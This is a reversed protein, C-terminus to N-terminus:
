GSGLVQPVRQTCRLQTRGKGIISKTAPVSIAVLTIKRKNLLSNYGDGIAIGCTIDLIVLPNVAKVYENAHRVVADDLSM